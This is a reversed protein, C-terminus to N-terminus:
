SRRKWESFTLGNASVISFDAPRPLGARAILLRPRDGNWELIGRSVQGRHSGSLNLYDVAVPTVGEDLRVKAHAMIRGNFIVKMENGLATRSGFALWEAPMDQGDMVLKVPLWDGELRRLMPTMAADFAQADITPGKAPKSPQRRSKAAAVAAAEGGTVDIPRAASARRLRELAHGSGRRTVFAKPRGRGTLGLCITLQDGRREFIGYSTHGAEPGEVFDIDIRPPDMSIDITFIGDYQGEPSAMRFRDGDILLRSAAFAAGALDAGDVQLAEFRWEGELARLQEVHRTLLTWSAFGAQRAVVSQADALRFGHSAARAPTMGHAEPLQRIFARAASADGSKLQALLTKAEGRLYELNPRAPLNPTV